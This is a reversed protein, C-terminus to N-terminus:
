TKQRQLKKVSNDIKRLLKLGDKATKKTLNRRKTWSISTGKEIKVMEHLAKNRSDKWNNVNNVVLAKLKDDTEMDKSNSIIRELTKFAFNKKLLFTLRSELRDAILSEILAIAELYFEENISYNIWDYANKYLEFRQRGV